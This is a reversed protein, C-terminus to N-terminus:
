NSETSVTLQVDSFKLDRESLRRLIRLICRVHQLQRLEFHTRAVKSLQMFFKGHWNMKVDFCENSLLHMLCQSIL